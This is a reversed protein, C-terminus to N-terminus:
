LGVTEGYLETCGWLDRLGEVPGWLVGYVGLGGMCGWLGRLERYMSMSESHGWVAGYVGIFGEAGGYM